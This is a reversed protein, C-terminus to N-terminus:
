VAECAGGASDLRYQPPFRPLPNCRRRHPHSVFAFRSFPRPPKCRNAVEIKRKKQREEETESGSGVTALAV